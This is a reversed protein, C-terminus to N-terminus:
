CVCEKKECPDCPDCPDCRDCPDCCSDCDPDSKTVSFDDDYYDDDVILQFCRSVLLDILYFVLAILGFIGSVLFFYRKVDSSFNDDTFTEEGVILAVSIGVIALAIFFDLINIFITLFKNTSLIALNILQVIMAIVSAAIAISFLVIAATRANRWTSSINTGFSSKPALCILVLATTLVLILLFRFCILAGLIAQSM